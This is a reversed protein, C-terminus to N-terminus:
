ALRRWLMRSRRLKLKDQVILKERTKDDLGALAEDEAVVGGIGELSKFKDVELEPVHQPGCELYWAVGRLHASTKLQGPSFMCESSSCDLWTQLFPPLDEKAIGRKPFLEQTFYRCL